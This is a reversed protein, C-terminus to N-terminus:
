QDQCAVEGIEALRRFDLWQNTRQNPELHRNHNHKAIMIVFTPFLHSDGLHQRRLTDFNQISRAVFFIADSKGAGLSKDAPKAPAHKGSKSLRFNLSKHTSRDFLRQFQLTRHRLQAGLLADDHKMVRRNKLSDAPFNWFDVRKQTCRSQCFYDVSMAGVQNYVTMRMM